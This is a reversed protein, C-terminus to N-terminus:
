LYRITNHIIVSMLLDYKYNISMHLKLFQFFHIKLISKLMLLNSSIKKIM